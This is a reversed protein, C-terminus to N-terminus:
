CSGRLTLTYPRRLGLPRDVSSVRAALCHWAVPLGFFVLASRTARGFGGNGRMTALVSVLVISLATNVHLIPVILNLLAKFVGTEALGAHLRQGAEGLARVVDRFLTARGPADTSPDNDSAPDTTNLALSM